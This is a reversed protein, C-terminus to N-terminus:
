SCAAGNTPIGRSWLRGTVIRGAQRAHAIGCPVFSALQLSADRLIAVTKAALPRAAPM